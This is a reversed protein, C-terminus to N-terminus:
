RWPGDRDVFYAGGNSANGISPIAVFRKGAFTGSGVVTDLAAFAGNLRQPVWYVGPYRARLSQDSRMLIDAFVLANDAPNPYQVEPTTGSESTSVGGVTTRGVARATGLGNPARPVINYGTSFDTPNQGYGLYDISGYFFGQDNVSSSSAGLVTDYPDPTKFGIPEGFFYTQFGRGSDHRVALYFMKEDGYFIWPRTTADAVSSKGLWTGGNAQATTPFLGTGTSVASMTEYGILRAERPDTTWNDNVRLFHRNGTVDTSRYVALNTGSFPKDWGISALKAIISGTATQDSIGTTAFSATNTTVATIRQEGNLGSPAAGAVLVVSGVEFAHGTSINMTAVNSAVTLTDVSKLGFGNVLCADLVAILSGVQGTLSPAGTMASHLFKVSTAPM